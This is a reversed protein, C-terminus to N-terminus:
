CPKRKEKFRNHQIDHHKHCLAILNSWDLRRLWGTPTQIPEKHHVEETLQISYKNDKKAEEQCMECLEHKERYANRLLKWEKSNYFAKYKKDRNKNYRSMSRRKNDEIEKEAIEKCNSCYKNPSQIVKKCRACLKLLM